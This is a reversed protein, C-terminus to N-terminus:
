AAQPTRKPWMALGSGLITVIFGAWVWWQMPFFKITIVANGAQDVGNFSIFIDKLPQQILAVKMTASGEQQTQIPYVLRPKVTGAPKGDRLVNLTATVVDDGNDATVEKISEFTFTYTGTAIPAGVTQPVANEYSKVYMTSGILGVLIIGMGLHTLYGGSQTRAKTLIRFLATGFGEGKAAARKRAGDIFLYIPLAIALSATLLGILATAHHLAPIGREYTYYPMMAFAWVAILGTGIVAAGALPWKARQWFANWGAGGWSLIPCVSMVLIYFIGLPRALANFTDPGFTMGGGPMWTPFAQAMTLYAVMIAAILMIVNNFYYSGEKSFIREFSDNGKLKDWRIAVGIGAVVLTGVMMALFLWFSLMDEQFTHVSSVVGSRTIFTGLLVFVFTFAAMLITWARFGGRKRYVTMSHLLGVGTLWPLISANEVPDWAWYGGFALEIYAWIAGLGIGIGLMLWAFVTIRDSIEVWRKSTDGTLLAAMAFAFPVALGAYGLFLTPPHAVMAWTQLLPSMAAEILLKGNADLYQPPLLGFPNNLPIFLASLFFMQVFNLIGLAATAIREGQKMFRIAVWGAFGALLWEWFLLSGERGAWVGSLRYLWAWPGVTTPHNYAVYQLTFNEGLFASAILLVALTTFALTALSLYHGAKRVGESGNPLAAFALAGISAIASISAMVLLSNGLVQLDM